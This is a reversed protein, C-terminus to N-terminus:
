LVHCIAFHPQRKRTKQIVDSLSKLKVFGKIHGVILSSASHLPAPRQSMSTLSLRADLAAMCLARIQM